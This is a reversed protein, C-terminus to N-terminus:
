YLCNQDNELDIISYSAVPGIIVGMDLYQCCQLHKEDIIFQIQTLLTRMPSYLSASSNFHVGWRHHMRAITAM